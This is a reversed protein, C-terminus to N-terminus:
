DEYEFDEIFLLETETDATASARTTSDHGTTIYSYKQSVEPVIITAKNFMKSAEDYRKTNYFSKAIKLMLKGALTSDEKGLTELTKMATIYSKIAEQHKGTLSELNGQNIRAPVYTSDINIATNFAKAADNYQEFISYKIGLKNYDQKKGSNKAMNQYETLVMRQIEKIDKKFGSSIQNPDGYQLGLDTEKLGVPRFTEQAVRTLFFDRLEIKENLANWESAGKRWAEPFGKKGIMTIEVPIWLEGDLNITMSRDPNISKYRSSPIKTNFAAYIHGPVTIFATEIGMTELLSCYLVTLDDCDGTIRKLTDRPLSVSDVAHSNGQVSTFPAAPDSQYLCGIVGLANYVEIAEQIQKNYSSIFDNKVSQKIFSSYNRLASDAPTIFAAVKESNDWTMATKDYLDYSISYRQESTRNRREYQIIIEGTYPTTGETNFIKDNFLAHLPIEISEGPIMEEIKFCPTPADMLGSQFFSIEMNKIVHKDTNTFTASGLPNDIYYSQMAAFVSQINSDVLRISRILSSDFDPDEGFRYNFSVGFGISFGDFDTMDVNPETMAQQYKIKSRVEISLSYSPNLALSGGTEAFLYPTSYSTSEDLNAFLALSAGGTIDLGIEFAKSLRNVYGIGVGGFMHKHDWRDGDGLYNRSDYQSLGLQLQPIFSPSQPLPLKFTSYVEFVNFDSGYASFPTLGQYTMGMSFPYQYMKNYNVEATDQSILPSIRLILLVFLIIYSYQNARQSIM